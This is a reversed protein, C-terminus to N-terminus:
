IIEENRFPKDLKLIRIWKKVLASGPYPDADFKFPDKASTLLIVYHM